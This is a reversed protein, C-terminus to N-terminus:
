KQKSKVKVRSNNPTEIVVLASQTVEKTHRTLHKLIEVSGALAKQFQLGKIKAIGSTIKIKHYADFDKIKYKDEIQKKTLGWLAYIEDTTCQSEIYFDLSEITRENILDISEEM